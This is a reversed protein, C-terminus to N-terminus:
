IEKWSIIKINKVDKKKITQIAANSDNLIISTANHKFFQSIRKDGIILNDIADENYKIEANGLFVINGEAILVGNFHTGNQVYIDETSYIIGSGQGKGFTKFYTNGDSISNDSLVINQNSYYMFNNSNSADNYLTNGTYSSDDVNSSLLKQPEAKDLGNENNAFLDMLKTYEKKGYIVANTYDTNNGYQGESTYGPIKGKEYESYGYITGNAAVGGSCFGKIRGLNNPEIIIDGTNFYAEYEVDDKWKNNINLPDDWIYKLHFIKEPILFPIGEFGKMMWTDVGYPDVYEDVDLTELETYSGDKYFYFYDNPNLRNNNIEFAAAPRSDSKQISIGSMYPKNTLKNKYDNYFTSGGVYVSGNIYLKSDGSVIAASSVDSSNSGASLGILLGEKETETYATQGDWGGIKVEANNGDIRLDDFTILDKFKVQSYNSEREVIASRTFTSGTIEIDSHHNSGGNLTHIYAATAVDGNINFSGRYDKIFSANSINQDILMNLILMSNLGFYSANSWINSNGAMIGGFKYSDATYDIAKSNQPITGYCIVDGDVSVKGNVNITGDLNDTGGMAIINKEAVLAKGTLISPKKNIRVTTLKSYSVPIDTNSETLLSFEANIKRKYTSGNVPSKYEGISTIGVSTIKDIDSISGLQSAIKGSDKLVVNKYMYTSGKETDTIEKPVDAKLDSDKRNNLEESVIRYFQYEYERQLIKGMEINDVVIVEGPSSTNDLVGIFPTDISHTPTKVKTVSDTDFKSYYAIIGQIVNDRERRAKEQVNGVVEDVIQAAREAGAQAVQMAESRDSSMVSMSLESGTLAIVAIAMVSLMLLMFLVMTLASGNNKKFLKAINM